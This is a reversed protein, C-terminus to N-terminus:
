NQHQKLFESIEFILLKVKEEFGRSNDIIRHYPHEKWVDLLRDDIHMAQEPTETRADNGELTYCECAGKAATELHFVANYSERLTKEDFGLESLTVAYEGDTMYAKNDIVGRDCVVLVKSSNLLQLAADCIIREKEIQLRIQCKQYEDSSKMTWPSIGNSILETATEPIFVVAYGIATFYERIKKMATTKGACPGGTLVIKIIEKANEQVNMLM